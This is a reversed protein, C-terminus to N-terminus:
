WSGRFAFQPLFAVFAAALLGASNTGGVEVGARFVYWVAVAMFVVTLLRSARVPWYRRMDDAANLYFRPAFPLLL